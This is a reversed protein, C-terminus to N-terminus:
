VRRPQRAFWARLLPAQAFRKPPKQRRDRGAARDLKAAAIERIELSRIREEFAGLLRGFLEEQVAGAFDGPWREESSRWNHIALLPGLANSYILAETMEYDIPVGSEEDLLDRLNLAGAPLEYIYLWPAPAATVTRSISRWRTAFSWAHRCIMEEVITEYMAEAATMEDTDEGLVAPAEAGLRVLAAKVIAIKTAM